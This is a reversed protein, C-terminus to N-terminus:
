PNLDSFEGSNERLIKKNVTSGIWAKFYFKLRPFFSKVSIASLTLSKLAFPLVMANFHPNHGVGM